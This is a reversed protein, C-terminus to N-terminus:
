LSSSCQIALKKESVSLSAALIATVRPVDSSAHQVSAHWPSAVHVWIRLATPLPVRTEIPPRQGRSMNVGTNACLVGYTAYTWTFNRTADRTSPSNGYVTVYV